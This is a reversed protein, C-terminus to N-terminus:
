AISGASRLTEIMRETAGHAVAVQSGGSSTRSPLGQQQECYHILKAEYERDVHGVREEAQAAKSAYKTMKYQLKQQREMGQARLLERKRASFRLSDQQRQQEKDRRSDRPREPALARQRKM